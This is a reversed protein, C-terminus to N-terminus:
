GVSGADFRAEWIERVCDLQKDNVRYEIESQM